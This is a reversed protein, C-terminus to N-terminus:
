QIPASPVGLLAVGSPLVAGGGAQPSRTLASKVASRCLFHLAWTMGPRGEQQDIVGKRGTGNQWLDALTSKSPSIERKVIWRM